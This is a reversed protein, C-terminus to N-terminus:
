EKRNFGSPRPGGPPARTGQPLITELIHPPGIANGHRLPPFPQQGIQVSGGKGAGKSKRDAFFFGPGWILNRCFFVFGPKKKVICREGPSDGGRGPPRRFFKAPRVPARRPPDACVGRTTRFRVWIRNGVLRGVVGFGFLPRFIKVTNRGAAHGGRPSFCGSDDRGGEPGGGRPKEDFCFAAGFARTKEGGEAHTAKIGGRGRPGGSSASPARTSDRKYLLGAKKEV